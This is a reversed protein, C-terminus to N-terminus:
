IIYKGGTVYIVWSVLAFAIQSQVDAPQVLDNPLKCTGIVREAQSVYM